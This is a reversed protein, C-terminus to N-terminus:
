RYKWRLSKERRCEVCLRVGDPYSMGDAADEGCKECLTVVAHYQFTKNSLHLAKKVLKLLDVNSQYVFLVLREDMNMIAITMHEEM